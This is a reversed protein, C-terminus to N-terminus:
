WMVTYAIQTGYVSSVQLATGGPTEISDHTTYQFFAAPSLIGSRGVMLNLGLRPAVAFGTGPGEAYGVGMGIGAFVFLSRSLPVHYSPEVLASFMTRSEDGAKAYQLRTLLSIELNDTIFFGASPGFSLETFESAAAFSASGGLELVGRRGYAVLGGIGAQRILGTMPMAVAAPAPKADDDSEPAPLRSADVPMDGDKEYVFELAFQDRRNEGASGVPQTEGKSVIFIRDASIGKLILYDRAASARQGGLELNSEEDGVGDTHGPITVDLAVNAALHAALKDLSARAEATLEVSGFKFHIPAFKVSTAPAPDGSPGASAVSASLSLGIALMITLTLKNL